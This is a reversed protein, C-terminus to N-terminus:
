GRHCDGGGGPGSVSCHFLSLGPPLFPTYLPLSLCSRSNLPVPHQSALSCRQGRLPLVLTLPSLGIPAVLKLFCDMWADHWVGEGGM